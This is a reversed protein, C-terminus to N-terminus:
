SEASAVQFIICVARGNLVSKVTVQFGLLKGITTLEEVSVNQYGFQTHSFTKLMQQSYITNIYIGNLKLVRKIESMALRLDEWFYSVNISYCKDFSNEPFDIHSVNCQLLSLNGSTVLKKNRKAASKLTSQSIDIGVLQCESQKAIQNLVFGNGCGIDLINEENEPSLYNITAQYLPMNQQNMVATIVKGGLGSPNAFQRAIYRNLNM